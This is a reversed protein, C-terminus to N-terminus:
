QVGREHPYILLGDHYILHTVDPSLSVEPQHTDQISTHHMGAAEVEDFGTATRRGWVTLNGNADVDVEWGDRRMSSAILNSIETLTMDPTIEFTQEYSAGSDTVFRVFLSGPTPSGLVVLNQVNVHAHSPAATSSYAPEPNDDAPAAVVASPVYRGDLSEVALLTRVRLSM